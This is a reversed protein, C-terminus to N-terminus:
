RVSENTRENMEIENMEIENMEIENMENLKGVSPWYKKRM